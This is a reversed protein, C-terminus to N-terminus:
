GRLGKWGEPSVPIPSEQTMSETDSLAGLQEGLKRRLKLNKRNERESKIVKMKNRISSEGLGSETGGGQSALSELRRVSAERRPFNPKTQPSPGPSELAPSTSWKSIAAKKKKFLAEKVSSRVSSPIFRAVSSWVHRCVIFLSVGVWLLLRLLFLSSHYLFEKLQATYSRPPTRDVVSDECSLRTKRAAEVSQQSKELEGEVEDIDSHLQNVVGSVELVLDQSIHRINYVTKHKKDNNNDVASAASELNEILLSDLERLSNSISDEMVDLDQTLKNAFVVREELSELASSVLNLRKKTRELVEKRQKKLDRTRPDMDSGKRSLPGISPSDRGGSSSGGVSHLEITRPPSEGEGSPELDDDDDELAAIWQNLNSAAGTPGLSSNSYTRWISQTRQVMGINGRQNRESEQLAISADKGSWLGELLEKDGELYKDRHLKEHESLRWSSVDEEKEEPVSDFSGHDSSSSDDRGALIEMQDQVSAMAGELKSQMASVTSQVTGTFLSATSYVLGKVSKATEKATHKPDISSVSTTNQSKFAEETVLM